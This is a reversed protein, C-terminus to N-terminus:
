ILAPTTGGPKTAAQLRSPRPWTPRTKSPFTGHRSDLTSALTALPALLYQPERLAVVEGLALQVPRGLLRDLAGAVEGVDPALALLAVEAPQPDDADVRGRAQVVDGVALEARAQLPGAHVQVALRQGVDRRAVRLPEPREHLRRLGRAGGGLDGPPGCTASGAAGSGSRTRASRSSKSRASASARLADARCATRSRKRPRFAPATVSSSFVSPPSEGSSFRAAPWCSLARLSSSSARRSSARERAAASSREARSSRSRMSTVSGPRRGASPRRWGSVITRSSSSSMKTPM